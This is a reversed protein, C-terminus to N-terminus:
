LYAKQVTQIKDNAYPLNTVAFQSVSEENERKRTKM